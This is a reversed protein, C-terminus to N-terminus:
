GARELTSVARQAAGFFLPGAVEYLILGPPLPGAPHGPEAAGVLRVESVEAMRQMFLLAALVIGFSVAIVMDFVVTLLLCVWLVVVDSRPGRRTVRVVHRYESM